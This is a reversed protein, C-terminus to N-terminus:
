PSLVASRHALRHWRKRLRGKPRAFMAHQLTYHPKRRNRWNQAGWYAKKMALGPVLAPPLALGSQQYGFARMERRCVTEIAAVDAPALQQKWKALSATSVPGTAAANFGTAAESKMYTPADAYFRLMEPEYCEGLFACVTRLVAAPDTVLDEYRVTLQREPPVSRELLARGVTLHKHWNLANFVLDDGCFPARMMSAVGARPDRVVHIFLADPFMAHIHDAYFLNGPTKEGWRAKGQSLAWASLACAYPHRLDAPGSGLITRKLVVPDLGPLNLAVGEVFRRVFTKYTGPAWGPARWREIPIGAITANFYGLEEPVAIGSHANLLLRVLTTGSRNAGVIFIPANM